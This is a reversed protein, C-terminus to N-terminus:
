KAAVARADASRYNVRSFDLVRPPVRSLLNEGAGAAVAHWQSGEPRLSIRLLQAPRFAARAYATWEAPEGTTASGKILLLHKSVSDGFAQAVALPIEPNAPSASLAACHFLEFAALHLRM